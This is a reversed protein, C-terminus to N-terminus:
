HIAYSCTTQSILLLLVLYVNTCNSSWLTSHWVMASSQLTYGSSAGFGWYVEFMQSVLSMDSSSSSSTDIAVRNSILRRNMSMAWLQSVSLMPCSNQMLAGAAHPTFRAVRDFVCTCRQRM